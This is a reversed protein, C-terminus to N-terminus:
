PREILFEIFAGSVSLQISTLSVPNAPNFIDPEEVSQTNPNVLFIRVAAANRHPRHM